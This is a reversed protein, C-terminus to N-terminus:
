DAELPPLTVGLKKLSVTSEECFFQRAQAIEDSPYTAPTGYWAELVMAMEYTLLKNLVLIVKALARARDPNSLTEKLNELAKRLNIGLPNSTEALAAIFDLPSLLDRRGNKDPKTRLSDLLASQEEPSSYGFAWPELLLKWVRKEAMQSRLVFGPMHDPPVLRQFRARLAAVLEVYRASHYFCFELHGPDKPYQAVADLSTSLEGSVANLQELYTARNELFRELLKAKVNRDHAARKSLEEFFAKLLATLAASFAAIAVGALTAQQATEWNTPWFWIAVGIAFGM